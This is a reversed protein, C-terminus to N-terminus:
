RFAAIVMTPQGPFLFQTFVQIEGENKGLTPRPQLYSRRPPCLFPFVSPLFPLRSLPLQGECGFECAIVMAVAIYFASRYFLRMDDARDTVAGGAVLKLDSAVM